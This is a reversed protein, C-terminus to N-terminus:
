LTKVEVGFGADEKAKIYIAAPVHAAIKRLKTIEEHAVKQVGKLALEAHALFTIRAPLGRM